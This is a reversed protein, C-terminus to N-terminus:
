YVSRNVKMRFGDMLMGVFYSPEKWTESVAFYNLYFSDMSSGSLPFGSVTFKVPLNSFYFTLPPLLYPFKHDSWYPCDFLNKLFLYPISDNQHMDVLTKCSKLVLHSSSISGIISYTSQVGVGYCSLHVSPNFRCILIKELIYLRGM